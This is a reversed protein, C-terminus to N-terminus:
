SEIAQPVYAATFMAAKNVGSLFAIAVGDLRKGGAREVIDNVICGLLTTNGITSHQGIYTLYEVALRKGTECDAEYAGTADVKWYNIGRGRPKRYEMFSLDDAPHPTKKRELQVVNTM